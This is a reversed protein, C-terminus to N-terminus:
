GRIRIVFAVKAQGEVFFQGKAKAERKNKILELDAAQYEKFWKESSVAAAKRSVVRAKKADAKATVRSKLLKANRAQTKLVNEPIVRAGGKKAAVKKEVRFYSM